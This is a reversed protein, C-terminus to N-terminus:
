QTIKLNAFYADTSNELWLAVGGETAGLKLDNVLLTPQENGHLYLRAKEGELVVKVKTWEGPVLDAYTEYLGPTEERLKFWPFDPFSIYQVSHNRRLQDEARGNTPRLYITEYRSLDPATRFAIGVFGRAGQGAGAAPKGAIELEITGDGIRADEIVVLPHDGSERPGSGPRPRQAPPELTSVVHIAKRGKYTVVEAKTHRFELGDTSDLSFTRTQAAALSALGLAMAAVCTFSVLKNPFGPMM